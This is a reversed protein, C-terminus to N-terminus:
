KAKRSGEVPQYDYDDPTYDAIIKKLLGLEQKMSYHVRAQIASMNKLTRELILSSDRAVSDQDSHKRSVYPQPPRSYVLPQMTQMVSWLVNYKRSKAAEPKQSEDEADAYKKVISDCMDWYPKHARKALTLEEIWREIPKIEDEADDGYGDNPASGKSVAKTKKAM